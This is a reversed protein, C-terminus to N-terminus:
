RPSEDTSPSSFIDSLIVSAVTAIPVSLLMGVVGALRAGLLFAIITVLPNLGVARKMINPILVHNELQQVGIYFGLAILGLWLSQSLAILVGPVAAVFPGIVPIIELLGAVLGLLLAYKVGLVWLGIGVLLGVIVGLTIQALLWRGLSHQTREVMREVYPLHARPTVLRIFKKLADKQVVLYFALIFVFAVAAIGTFFTRTRQFVTIGFGSLEEGARFIIQNFSDTGFPITFRQGLGFLRYAQDIAGPLAHVLQQSQVRIPDIMLTIVGSVLALLVIYVVIVTVARPVRWRQANSALPEIVSAVIIAAFLMLVLDFVVYVFWFCLLILVARFITNSRIDIITRPTSM